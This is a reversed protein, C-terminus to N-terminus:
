KHGCVLRSLTTREEYGIGCYDCVYIKTITRRQNKDTNNPNKPCNPFGITIWHGYHKSVLYCKGIDCHECKPADSLAYAPLTCVFLCAALLFLFARKKM